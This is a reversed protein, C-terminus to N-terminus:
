SSGLVETVADIDDLWGEVLSQRFGGGQHAAEHYIDAATVILAGRM